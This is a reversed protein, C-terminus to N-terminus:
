YAECTLMGPICSPRQPKNLKQRKRTGNRSYTGRIPIKHSQPLEKSTVIVPTEILPNSGNDPITITDLASMITDDIGSSKKRPQTHVYRNSPNPFPARFESCLNTVIQKPSMVNTSSSSSSSLIHKPQITSYEPEDLIAGTSTKKQRPLITILQPPPPSTFPKFDGISSYESTTSPSESNDSQSSSSRSGGFASRMHQLTDYDEFSEYPILEKSNRRALPHQKELEKMNVSVSEYQSTIPPPPTYYQRFELGSKTEELQLQRNAKKAYNVTAYEASAAFPTVNLKPPTEVISSSVNHNGSISSKIFHFLERAKNTQFYVIMEGHMAKRGLELKLLDHRSAYFRVVQLPWDALLCKNSVKTLLLRDKLLHLYCAGSINFKRTELTELVKVLYVSESNTFPDLCRTTTLWHVWQNRLTEDKASLLFRTDNEQFCLEFLHRDKSFNLIKVEFKGNTLDYKYKPPEARWNKTSKNYIMFSSCIGKMDQLVLLYKKWNDKKIKVGERDCSYEGKYIELYDNHYEIPTIDSNSRNEM